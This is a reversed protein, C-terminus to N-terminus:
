EDYGNIPKIENKTLLSEALSPCCAEDCIRQIVKAPTSEQFDKYIVEYIKKRLFAEVYTKRPHDRVLIGQERFWEPINKPKVLIKDTILMSEFKEDQTMPLAKYDTTIIDLVVLILRYDNNRRFQVAKRIIRILASVFEFNEGGRTEENILIGINYNQMDVKSAIERILIEENDSKTKMSLYFFNFIKEKLDKSHDLFIEDIIKWPKPYGPFPSDVLSSRMMLPLCSERNNSFILVSDSKKNDIGYLLTKENSFNIFSIGDELTKVIADSANRQKREETCTFNFSGTNNPIIELKERFPRQNALNKIESLDYFLREASLENYNNKNLMDILEGTFLSHEEGAYSRRNSASSCYAWVSAEEKQDYGTINRGIEYLNTRSLGEASYCSDIVLILHQFRINGLSSILGNNFSFLENPDPQDDLDRRYDYPVWHFFKLAEFKTASLGHGSYYIILNHRTCNKAVKFDEHYSLNRFLREINELTAEENLLHTDKEQLDAKGANEKESFYTYKLSEFGYDKLAAILKNSDNECCPSLQDINKNKYKGIGITIIYNKKM